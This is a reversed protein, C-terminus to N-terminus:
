ETLEELINKKINKYELPITIKNDNMYKIIKYLLIKSINKNIGPETNYTHDISYNKQGTHDIYSKKCLISIIDKGNKTDISWNIINNFDYKFKIVNQKNRISIHDNHIFIQRTKYNDKVIFFTDSLLYDNKIKTGNTAFGNQLNDFLDHQKSYINSRNIIKNFLSKM